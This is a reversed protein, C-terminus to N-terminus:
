NVQQRDYAIPLMTLDNFLALLVIMLSDIPCNSIYILLTLVVVIQM